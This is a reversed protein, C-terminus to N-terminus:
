LQSVSVCLCLWESNLLKEDNHSKGDSSDVSESESGNEEPEYQYCVVINESGKEINSEM